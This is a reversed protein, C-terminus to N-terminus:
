RAADALNTTKMIQYTLSGGSMKWVKALESERRAERCRERERGDREEKFLRM